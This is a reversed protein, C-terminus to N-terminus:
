PKFSESIQKLQKLEALINPNIQYDISYYRLSEVVKTNNTKSSIRFRAVNPNVAHIPLAIGNAIATGLVSFFTTALEEEPSPMEKGWKDVMKGNSNLKYSAPDAGIKILDIGRFGKKIVRIQASKIEDIPIKIFNGNNNLIVNLSDVKYLIGKQKDNRTKIIAQYPKINQAHSFLLTFCLSFCIYIIKM